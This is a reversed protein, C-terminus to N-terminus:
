KIKFFFKTYAVSSHTIQISVVNVCFRCLKTFFTLADYPFVVVIKSVFTLVLGIGWHFLTWPRQPTHLTDEESWEERKAAEGEM